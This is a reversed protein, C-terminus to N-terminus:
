RRHLARIEADNKADADALLRIPKVQILMIDAQKVMTEYLRDIQVQKQSNDDKLLDMMTTKADSASNRPHTVPARNTLRPTPVYVTMFSIKSGDWVPLTFTRTWAM